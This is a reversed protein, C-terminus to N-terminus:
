PNAKPDIDYVSRQKIGSNLEVIEKHNEFIEELETYTLQCPDKGTIKSISQFMKLDEGTDITLRLQQLHEYGCKLHKWPHLSGPRYYEATVHEVQNPSLPKKYQELFSARTFAEAAGGLPLDTGVCYDLEEDKLLQVMQLFGEKYLCPNDATVRIYYKSRYNQICQHFREFVNEEPGRYIQISKKKCFKALVDDETESSTLVILREPPLNWIVNEILSWQYIKQLVKGPLRKSRMRAQVLIYTDNFSLNPEGIVTLM